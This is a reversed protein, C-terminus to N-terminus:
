LWNTPRNWLPAAKGSGLTAVESLSSVGQRCGGKMEEPQQRDVGNPPDAGGPYERM